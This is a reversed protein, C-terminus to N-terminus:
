VKSSKHTVVTEYISASTVLIGGLLTQWNPSENLIIISLAVGYIPQMSAVLSFTKARLHKLSQAILAHPLATFVTGLLLLWLWDDIDAVRLGNFGFPLLLICIVATQWAMAKAGSYQSFHKRHILNRLSYLFASFVGVLVGMTIDNSLDPAPVILAIGLLVVLASLIDQWHITGKEIFPEMFVTIVPFTFLAIIGVSVGAYQMAAFYTVWHVAMLAGLFCAMVYDRINTLVLSGRKSYVLLTLVVFAFISRGLTIDTAPLSIIQSFLATGGLLVVTLHLSVLSRKVPDM